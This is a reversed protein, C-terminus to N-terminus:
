DFKLCKRKFLNWALWYFKLIKKTLFLKLGNQILLRVLCGGVALHEVGLVVQPVNFLELVDLDDDLSPIRDPDVSFLNANFMKEFNNNVTKFCSNRGNSLNEIFCRFNSCPKCFVAQYWLDNFTSIKKLGFNNWLCLNM